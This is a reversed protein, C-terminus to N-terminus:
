PKNTTTDSSKCNWSAGCKYVTLQFVSPSGAIADSEAYQNSTYFGYHWGVNNCNWDNPIDGSGGGTALSNGVFVAEDTPSVAAKTGLNSVVESSMSVAAVEGHVNQGAYCGWGSLVIPFGFIRDTTEERMQVAGFNVSAPALYVQTWMGITTTNVDHEPYVCMMNISAPELVTFNLKLPLGTLSPTTVTVTAPNAASNPATFIVTSGNSTNLTGGSVSWIADAPMGGLNVQEGVGITLRDKNTPTDAVCIHTLRYAGPDTTTLYFPVGTQPTADVTSGEAVVTAALNNMNLQGLQGDTIQDFVVNTSIPYEEMATAAGEVLVKAGALAIGGLQFIKKVQSSKDWGQLPQGGQTGFAGQENQIDFPSVNTSDFAPTTGDAYTIPLTAEDPASDIGEM